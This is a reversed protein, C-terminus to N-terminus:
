SPRPPPAPTAPQPTTVSPKMFFAVAMIIAGVIGVYVGIGTYQLAGPIAGLTMLAGIWCLLGLIGAVIAIKRKIISVFGLVVAVLYLVITLIIGYPRASLATYINLLSVSMSTDLVSVTILPLFGSLLFLITGVFAAVKFYRM